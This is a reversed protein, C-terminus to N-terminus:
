CGRVIIRFLPNTVREVTNIFLVKEMEEQSVMVTILKLCAYHKVFGHLLGKLSSPLYIGWM